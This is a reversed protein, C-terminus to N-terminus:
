LLCNMLGLFARSDSSAGLSLACIALDADTGAFKDVLQALIEPTIPEKKTIRHALMRKAGALVQKVLDSQTPDDALAVQHAWSIANIAEEVPSSTSAKQTLYLSVQVQSAPFYPVEYKQQAWTKWRLFAGRYKKVTSPARSRRVM